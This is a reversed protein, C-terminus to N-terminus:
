LLKDLLEILEQDGGAPPAWDVQIVQAGQAELSKAFEPLGINVAVPGVKLLEDLETTM